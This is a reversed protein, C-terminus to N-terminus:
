QQLKDFESAIKKIYKDMLKRSGSSVSSWNQNQAAAQYYMDTIKNLMNNFLRGLDFCVTTRIINYMESEDSTESYRLKMNMEFQAPTTTRYAEAAWCELVAATRELDESAAFIGYLSFPNGVVSIYKEQDKDYLPTPVIGYSFDVNGVLKKDALHCRDQIFLANGTVFANQATQESGVNCDLSANWEGLKACLTIAKDSYFDESVILLQEEDQEVLRLDSGTYFADFGFDAGVFGYRDEPSKTNGSDSDLYVGKTMEILADLTWEHSRVLSVPNDLQFSALLEKNFYLAYMLHLMNISADGSAFYVSDGISVVDLLSEPWWPMTFNLYPLDAMDACYGNYACTATTRSYASILDLPTDGGNYINGVYNVFQNLNANSGPTSLWALEIGLKDQVNANRKYIADNVIMSNLEEAEYEQMEVDSWYLVTVTEGGFDLEPLDSKLYGDKDYLHSTDEGTSSPQATSAETSDENVSPDDTEACAVAAPLLMLIALILAILRFHKKM